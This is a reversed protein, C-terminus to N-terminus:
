HSGNGLQSHRTVIGAGGGGGGGGGGGFLLVARGLCASCSFTVLSNTSPKKFRQPLGHANEVLCPEDFSLLEEVALSQKGVIQLTEFGEVALHAPQMVLTQMLGANAVAKGDGPLFAIALDRNSWAVRDIALTVLNNQNAILHFCNRGDGTLRVTRRHEE